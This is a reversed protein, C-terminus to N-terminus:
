IQWGDRYRFGLKQSAEAPGALQGAVPDYSLTEGPFQTAINGLMLLESLPGGNDFTALIHPKGGRCAEMWDGYIGHSSLIRQPRKTEAKEFKEKPLAVVNASHDDAVLAGDTGVLISGATKMLADAEEPRTVGYKRMVEHIRERTGPAYDPGHHWMLTVPPMTKRAPVEWRVREWRPFSVRNLRSCEALVRIRGGEADWLERLGLTLFPFISTHPGFSGLGGNSTERWHAYAMWDAHYERWPLPGLWLDWNLGEPVPQAGQPLADRDPGGRKFWVHVEQVQGIAGEQVLEMARRFAGTGTGPSRYTTPLKTEAALARLARADGITLGLPRESCVPKGARLAAGCAVGHFHDYDSVVLADVPNGGKGFLQRIDALIAVGEGKAMLGYREAAQREAANQSKALKAALEEWSKLITPIKRQDPNCLAAIEANYIHSAPLFHAANYMNGFVALRLRENAAYTRASRVSALVLLGSGVAMFDRRSLRKRM